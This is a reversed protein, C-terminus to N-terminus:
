NQEDKMLSPFGLIPRLGNLGAIVSSGNNILTAAMPNLGVSGALVLGSLNPVAVIGTNQRILQQAHRAIAIAEVLGCLDNKMLVVDATERAIDSGDRFSVSVDAYALAASDNIGDGVFAVTKGAEHLRQVVEAKYEPFAEAHVHAPPIDLERAVTHARQRNDGTLMHIEAGMTQGLTSIVERSEPRLPDTYQIAGQIQSNSAIYITPYGTTKLDPHIDYLQELSIGEKLLFRDSGVLITEGDIQAQIGFGVQYNWEGRPLITIQQKRAYRMIAEAVPHAIRQEAAAAIEIVRAAPVLEGVTKIDAITVEGQTLTGTKDLVIADVQALKELARGSRILIGCRAAQIMSALVTTPVSVRIGTAFDITLVSAARAASRTLAFVAGGLLLTPVVARDAIKAAYNEIRTDHVPANQILQITCGARTDAGVREARLYLQGERALTSAYVTQGESRVVPMSEGTLKQEDILAQGKIISGDVPIQEGPYVIVTDGVVVQEITVQLKQGDREIWVWQGLCSLLDLAQNQSSRATKDRIAEGLEILDIMISPALFNGQLTTIVIATLDLFDTNLRRQEIIGEWARKAVPLAALAITGRILTVPISLLGLSGGLLAVATALVPLRLGSWSNSTEAQTHPIPVNPDCAQQMLEALRSGIQAETEWSPAYSIVVCGAACNVRVATFQADLELLATLRRAYEPDSRIRPVRLRLRGPSAHILSYTFNRSLASHGNPKVVPRLKGNKEGVQNSKFVLQEM